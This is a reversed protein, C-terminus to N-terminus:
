GTFMEHMRAPHFAYRQTENRGNVTLLAPQNLIEIEQPVINTKHLQIIIM